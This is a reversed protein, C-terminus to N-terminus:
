WEAVNQVQGKNEYVNRSRESSKARPLAFRRRQPGRGYGAVMSFGCVASGATQAVLSPSKKYKDKTKMSMRAKNGRNQLQPTARVATNATRPWVWCGHFLRLGCCRRDASLPEAVNQVQGKNEYVNESQEGSKAPRCTSPNSDDPRGAAAKRGAALSIRDANPRGSRSVKVGPSKSQLFPLFWLCPGCIFVSSCKGAYGIRCPRVGAWDWL